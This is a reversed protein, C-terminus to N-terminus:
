YRYFCKPFCNYKLQTVKENYKTLITPDTNTGRNNTNNNQIIIKNNNIIKNVHNMYYYKQSIAFEVYKINELEIINKVNSIPIYADFIVIELNPLLKVINYFESFDLDNSNNRMDIMKINDKINGKDKDNDIISNLQQIKKNNYEPKNYSPFCARLDLVGLSNPTIPMENWSYNDEKLIRQNWFWPNMYEWLKDHILRKLLFRNEFKVHKIIEDPEINTLYDGFNILDERLPEFEGTLFEQLKPLNKRNYKHRQLIARMKATTNATNINDELMGLDYLCDLCYKRYTGDNQNKPMYNIDVCDFKCRSCLPYISRNKLRNRLRKKYNKDIENSNHLELPYRVCRDIRKGEKDSFNNQYLQEETYPPNLFSRLNYGHIEDILGLGYWKGDKLKLDRTFGADDDEVQIPYWDVKRFGDNNNDNNNTNVGLLGNGNSGAVYCENETCVYINTPFPFVKVIGKIPIEIPVKNYLIKGSGPKIKNPKIKESVWPLYGIGYYKNDKIFITYMDHYVIDGTWNLKVPETKLHKGDHMWISGDTRQFIVKYFSAWVKVVDTPANLDINNM